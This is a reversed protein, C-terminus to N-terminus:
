QPPLTVKKDTETAQGAGPPQPPIANQAFPLEDDSHLRNGAPDVITATVFIMLNKKVAVKMQSQFLRGVIPLDGVVPVKDKETQTSSTVLGGLIVTQGDWINVTTLVQRINFSPLIVPLQVVNLGGTVNAVNPPTQYGAFETVSPILTLNITYGDSLVYPVVDLLPGTEIAQTTPTIASTGPVFTNNQAQAMKTAGLAVSLGLMLKFIKNTTHIKMKRPPFCKISHHHHNCGVRAPLQLGHNGYHTARMETQRGSTTTVEPEALEEFGSRQELAHLVVRFNPNTLIGTITALTPLTANAPANPTTGNPGFIQQDSGSAPIQNAGTPGPFPVTSGGPGPVNLSPSSGGQAVVSHGVNFQGLYWDFGLGANDDQEVQIFRSKIHVQPAVQNLAQIASEITDLDQM